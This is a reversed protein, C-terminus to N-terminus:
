SIYPEMSAATEAAASARGHDERVPGRAHDHGTGGPPLPEKVDPEHVLVRGLHAADAHDCADRGAFPALFGGPDRDVVADPGRELLM